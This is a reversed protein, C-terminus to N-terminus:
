AKPKRGLKGETGARLRQINSRHRWLGLLGAALCFFFIVPQGPYLFWAAVPLLVSAAISAISVTRTLAFLVLWVALVAALAKPILVLLVGASVAIGKGGKFGLWPTYNHGLIAALATGVFLVDGQQGSFGENLFGRILALPLAGKLFDALFVAIGWKKGLVRFVNTSGINGSGHQRVDVGKCRGALYGFPISGSLFATGWAAACLGASLTGQEMM